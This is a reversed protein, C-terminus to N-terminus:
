RLLEENKLEDETMFALTSSILYQAQAQAQAQLLM